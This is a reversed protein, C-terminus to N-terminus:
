RDAGLVLEVLDDWGFGVTEAVVTRTSGDVLVLFPYGSVRYDVWAQDSMVVPCAGPATRGVVEEPAVTAPGKTVIVRRVDLPLRPEEPEEPERTDQLGEWFADCGDCQTALFALLVRAHGGIVVEVPDGAPSVGVLDLATRGVSAQNADPGIASPIPRLGAAFHPDSLPNPAGPDM